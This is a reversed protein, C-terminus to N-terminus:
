SNTSIKDGLSFGWVSSTRDVVERSEDGAKRAPFFNIQQVNEVNLFGNLNYWFISVFNVMNIWRADCRHKSRRSSPSTGRAGSIYSMSIPHLKFPQVAEVM